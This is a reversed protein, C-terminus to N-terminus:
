RAGAEHSAGHRQAASLSVTAPGTWGCACAPVWLGGHQRNDVTVHHAPFTAGDNDCVWDTGSLTLVHGAALHVAETCAPRGSPHIGCRPCYTPRGTTATATM